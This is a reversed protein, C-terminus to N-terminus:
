TAISSTRAHADIWTAIDDFLADNSESACRWHITSSRMSASSWHALDPRAATAACITRSASSEACPWSAYNPGQRGANTAFGHIFLIAAHPNVASVRYAVLDGDTEWRELKPEAEGRFM